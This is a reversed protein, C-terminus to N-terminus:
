FQVKLGLQIQRSDAARVVQGASASTLDSVPLFYHVTNFLNFAELRFQM